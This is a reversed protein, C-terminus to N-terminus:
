AKPAPKEDPEGWSNLWAEMDENAIVPGGAQSEALSAMIEKLQWKQVLIFQRVAEEGIWARSRHMAKALEDLDALVAPSVRLGIQTKIRDM